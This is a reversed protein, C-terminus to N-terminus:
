NVVGDFKRQRNQNRELASGRVDTSAYRDLWQKSLMALFVAFLSASLSAFHIARVHVVTHLPGTWQSATPVTGGFTTNDIEYILVRLLAATEENPDPQFGSQVQLIFASAM